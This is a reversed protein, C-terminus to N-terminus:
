KIITEFIGVQWGIYLTSYHKKAFVLVYIAYLFDVM